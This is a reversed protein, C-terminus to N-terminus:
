VTDHTFFGNGAAIATGGDDRSRKEMEQLVQKSPETVSIDSRADLRGELNM